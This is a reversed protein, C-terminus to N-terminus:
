MPPPPPPYKRMKDLLEADANNAAARFGYRPCRAEPGCIASLLSLTTASFVLALAVSM